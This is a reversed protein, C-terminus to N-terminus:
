SEVFLLEFYLVVFGSFIGMNTNEGCVSFLKLETNVFFMNCFIWQTDGDQPFFRHKMHLLMRYTVMLSLLFVMVGRVKTRNLADVMYVSVWQTDWRQQFILTVYTVGNFIYSNLFCYSSM